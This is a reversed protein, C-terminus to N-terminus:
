GYRSGKIPVLHASDRSYYIAARCTDHFRGRDFYQGIVWNLSIQEVPLREGARTSTFLGTGSRQYIIEQAEEFSIHLVGQPGLRKAQRAEMYMVYQKTGVIHKQYQQKSLKDSYNGIEIQTHIWSSSFQPIRLLPDKEQPDLMVYNQENILVRVEKDSLYGHEIVAQLDSQRLYIKINNGDKYRWIYYRDGEQYIVDFSSVGM